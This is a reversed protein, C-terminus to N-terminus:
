DEKEGDMRAGCHPCFDMFSEAAAAGCRACYPEKGDSDEHVMISHMEGMADYGNALRYSSRHREKYVWHSHVVPAADVAPAQEMIKRAGGPPGNHQRDYEALVYDRSILDSMM